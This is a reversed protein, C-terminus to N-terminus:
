FSGRLGFTPLIPLGSLGTLEAYDWTWDVVEVTRTNTINLVDLYLALEWKDFVWAKDVRLDLSFFTPLRADRGSAFVPVVGASDLDYIRNTVSTYPSGAGVRVRTGLQWRRPLRGSVIANVLYPQDFGFPRLRDDLRGSRMSRSLTASLWATVLPHDVRYLLELGYIRGDGENGYPGTDLRGPEPPTTFFRFREDRGVVLDDLRSAFGSVELRMGYPLEQALGVSATLAWPARLGATGDALASGLFVQRLQPPQSYRGASVTMATTPSAQWRLTLRPDLTLISRSGPVAFLDTRLGPVITLSGVRITPEVYLAPELVAAAGAELPGFGAVDYRYWRPGAELDLGLRWSTTPGPRTLEWRVATAVRREYAEADFIEGSQQDYGVQVGLESRWRDGLKTGWRVRARQFFTAYAALQSGAGEDETNLARFRDDSVLVMADIWGGGALRHAVRLQGDLYAPARVRLSTNSLIPTLVSDIYSRRFALTVATRDSARIEGFGAAQFADVSVFGNSREPLEARTRLDIRGGLTRGYRVGYGGPLFALEDIFDSALVTTLGGFHFALPLELGDVSFRSDEPATGRIALVGLGLPARAVGPLSQVARLVDGATGPLTRLERASLRRVTVDAEDRVGVVRVVEADEPDGLVGSAAARLYLRVVATDGAGAVVEVEDAGAAGEARVQWTGAVLGRAAFAGAADATVEVEAGGAGLLTVVAGPVPARTGAVRVEGVVDIRLALDATPAPPEAEPAAEPGAEGAPPAEAAPAAGTDQAVGARPWAATLACLTLTAAM